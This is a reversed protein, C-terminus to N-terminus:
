QIVPWSATRQRSPLIQRLGPSMQPCFPEDSGSMGRGARNTTPWAEIWISGRMGPPLGSAVLEGM